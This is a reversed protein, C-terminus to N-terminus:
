QAAAAAVILAALGGLVAFRIILAKTRDTHRRRVSNYGGYGDKIKRVNVYDFTVETKRDIDYFTFSQPGSSVFNGFEEEGQEPVVSIAAHPSLSKAKERVAAARRSLPAAQQSIGPLTTTLLFLVALFKYLVREMFRPYDPM